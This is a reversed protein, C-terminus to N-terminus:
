AKLKRMGLLGLGSVFLWIATPIPIPAVDGDRVPWAYLFRSKEWDGGQGGLHSGLSFYRAWGTVAHEKSTWYLWGVENDVPYNEFLNINEKNTGSLISSLHDAGMNIYFMFELESRTCLTDVCIQQIGKTDLFYGPLRWDDYGGYELWKVLTVSQDWTRQGTGSAGITKFYNVDKLWTVDLIDDYIMGNSRDHLAAQVSGIMGISIAFLVSVLRKLM